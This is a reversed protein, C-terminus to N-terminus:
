AGITTVLRIRRDEPIESYALVHLGRVAHRTLRALLPRLRPSVLLIAPEGRGEQRQTAEGLSKLLREALGPELAM